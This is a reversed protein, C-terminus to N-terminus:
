GAKEWEVLLLESCFGPGLAAIIGLDSEEGLGRSLYEEIVYMVTASSMNGHNKLVNKSVQLQEEEFGLSTQYAQLVKKGGPHALFHKIQDLPIQEEKLYDEVTQRLWNKIISPIDRSFIVYFGNNKIDWGMVDESDKMFTSRTSLTKPLTKLLSLEEAQVEEGALLTCAVGDAFLSTGIFNSKSLDDHQFTLSCLEVCVVIVKAKPYAKCYDHARSLGSAGGACGLGWIPVRKVSDKFPLRNMIKADISPTSIGTSSIFFIADIEGYGIDRKLLRKATLCNVIASTGLEVAAEIYTNNKDEFSHASTYWGMDKVFQRNEIDGNKFAPLLRNIDKFSGSFLKKAFEVATDQPMQNPPISKGVSLIYAM